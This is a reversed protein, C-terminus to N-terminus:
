WNSDLILALSDGDILMFNSKNDKFSQQIQELSSQIDDQLFCDSSIKHVQTDNSFLKCSYGINEATEMKDGTLM